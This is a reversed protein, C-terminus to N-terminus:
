PHEQASLCLTIAKFVNSPEPCFNSDSVVSINVRQPNWERALAIRDKGDAWTVISKKCLTALHMPGSLQGAVIRSGGIHDMSHQLDVSRCDICGPPCYSQEPHGIAICSLGANRCTVALEDASELPFNVRQDPGEKVINRFHFAVDYKLASQGGFVIWRQPMWRRTFHQSIATPLLIRCSKLGLAKAADRAIELMQKPQMWGYGYGAKRLDYEHPILECEPYLASRGPYSIVFVKRFRGVQANVFSQWEMCEFGFEGVYPGAILTDGRAIQFRSFEKLASWYLKLRGIGRM